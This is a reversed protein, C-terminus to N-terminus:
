PWPVVLVVLREAGEVNPTAEDSAPDVPPFDGPGTKRPPNLKAQLQYELKRSLARAERSPALIRPAQSSSRNLPHLIFHGMAPKQTTLM